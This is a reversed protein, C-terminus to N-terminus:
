TQPRWQKGDWKCPLVVTELIDDLRYPTQDPDGKPRPRARMVALERIEGPQPEDPKPM